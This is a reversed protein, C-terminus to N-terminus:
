CTSMLKKGAIQLDYGDPDRVHFSDDTDPKPDMGRRRLEAEVFKKDWPDITYAIHDVFPKNGPQRSKRAIIYADGFGLNCQKGDDCSVQMGFLGSYFDRTRAYDAVGFSIHNVGIAKFPSRQAAAALVPAGASAAVIGLTLHQVLQRRSIKGREFQDLLEVVDKEM